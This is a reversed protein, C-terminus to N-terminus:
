LYDYCKKGFINTIQTIENSFTNIFENYLKPHNICLTHLFTNGLIDRQKFIIQSIRKKYVEHVIAKLHYPNFKAITHLFTNGMLDKEIMIEKTLFEEIMSFYEINHQCLLHLWTMGFNNKRYFLLNSEFNPQFSNSIFITYLYFPQKIAVMHVISNGFHNIQYITRNNFSDNFLIEIHRPKNIVINKLELFNM